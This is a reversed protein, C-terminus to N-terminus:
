SYDANDCIVLNDMHGQPSFYVQNWVPLTGGDGEIAATLGSDYALVGNKYVRVFGDADYSSGNWTSFRFDFRYSAWTAPEWFGPITTLPTPNFRIWIELANDGPTNDNRYFDLMWFGSLRINCITYWEGVDVTKSDFSVSGTHGTAALGSKSFDGLSATTAVAQSGDPGIGPTKTVAVPSSYDASLAAGSNFDDAWLETCPIVVYPGAGSTGRPIPDGRLEELVDYITLGEQCTISWEFYSGTTLAGYADRTAIERCRVESILFDDSSTIGLSPFNLTQAQLPRIGAGFQTKFTVTRYPGGNRRLVGDALAEAEEETFIGEDRVLTEFTGHALVGAANVKSYYQPFQALYEFEVWDGTPIAGANRTLTMAVRDVTWQTTSLESVTENVETSTADDYRVLIGMANPQLYPRSLPWANSSGDGDFHDTVLAPGSPGYGIWVYNIYRNFDKIVVVDYAGSGNLSTEDFTRPSTLTYPEYARFTKTAPDVAWMWGTLMGVVRDVAQRVTLFEWAQVPLTPGTAQSVSLTIGFYALNAILVTLLGSLTPGNYIGNIMTTDLAFSWDVCRLTYLRSGIVDGYQQLQKDWVVGSFETVGGVVLVVEALDPVVLTQTQDVVRFTVVQRGSGYAESTYGVLLYPLFNVGDVTFTTITHLGPTEAM